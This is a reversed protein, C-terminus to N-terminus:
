ALTNLSKKTLLLLNESRAVMKNIQQYAYHAQEHCIRKENVAVPLLNCYIDHDM